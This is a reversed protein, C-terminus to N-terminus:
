DWWNQINKKMLDFALSLDRQRMRDAKRQLLGWERHISKSNQPTEKQFRIVVPISNNTKQKHLPIMKLRGYRKHFDKSVETSYRDKLFRGLLREVEKIQARIEKSNKHVSSSGICKRTRKLKYELLRLIHYYDWDQDVRLLKSYEKIKKQLEKKRTM